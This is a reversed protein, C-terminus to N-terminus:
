SRLVSEIASTAKKALNSLLAMKINYDSALQQIKYLSEPNSTTKMEQLMDMVQKKDQHAEVTNHALARELVDDLSMVANDSM